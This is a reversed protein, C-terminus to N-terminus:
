GGFIESELELYKCAEILAGACKGYAAAVHHIYPGMILQREWKEWNNVKLWGYYDRTYPGEVIEGEGVGLRYKGNDGDFRCVTLPGDKIRMQAQTPEDGPLIWPPMFKVKECSQHRISAPAGVHWMCVTDDDSPHRIVFEPFFVREDSTKAAEILALSVAGHIDAEDAVPIKENTLLSFLSGGPGIAKALSFFNQATIVDLKHKKKLELLVRTLAIGNNLEEKKMGSSDLWDAELAELEAECEKKNQALEDKTMDLVTGIEFPMVEVGFRELLEAENVICSWFFDIRAGVLGIRIRKATKVVSAARMFLDVGAAFSPHDAACNNIYTFKGNTLKNVLKSSPLLGCLTDRLRSGDKSPMDDRPGWLLVPVKLDRAILGAAGETGFNCHPLFLADIKQSRLYNVATECQDQSRILGDTSPLAADLDAFSVGQERLVRQVTKKQRIADEHSFLFKGIPCLGLLVDKKM